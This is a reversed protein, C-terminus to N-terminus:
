AQRAAIADIQASETLPVITQLRGHLDPEVLWVSRIWPERGDIGVIPGECIIRHSGIADFVMRTEPASLDHQAWADALM